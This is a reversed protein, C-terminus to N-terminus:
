AAICIVQQRFPLADARNTFFGVFGISAGSDDKLIDSYFKNTIINGKEVEKVEGTILNTSVIKFKGAIIM